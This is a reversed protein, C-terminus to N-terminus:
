PGPVFTLTIPECASFVWTPAAMYLYVACSYFSYYGDSSLCNLNGTSRSVSCTVTPDGATVQALTRLTVVGYEPDATFLSMETTPQGALYATGGTLVVAVSVGAAFHNSFALYGNATNRAVYFGDRMGGVVLLKGTQVPGPAATTVTTTSLAATRLTSTIISTAPQVIVTTVGISVASVVTSPIATSVTEYITSTSTSAVAPSTVVSTARV